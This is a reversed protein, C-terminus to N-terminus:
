MLKRKSLQRHLAHLALGAFATVAIGVGILMYTRGEIFGAALYVTIVSYPFEALALAAIYRWFDYRILGLLYGPVESPLALQLLLIFGFASRRPILNEYREIVRQPLLALVVARGFYRSMTYATLGGLIWGVWLMLMSIAKGWVFVGIPAIVASSVFAFMASLAAYIIFIVMGFVARERILAELVPLTGILWAHLRTFSTVLTLVGVLLIIVM